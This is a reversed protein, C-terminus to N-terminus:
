RQPDSASNAELKLGEDPSQPFSSAKVQFTKPLRLDPRSREPRTQQLRAAARRCTDVRRALPGDTDENDEDNDERDM